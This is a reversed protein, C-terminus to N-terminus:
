RGLGLRVPQDRLAAYWLARLPRVQTTVTRGYLTVALAQWQRCRAAMQQPTPLRAGRRRPRGKQGPRRKPAPAWLAADGRLRSVVHVNPPRHELVARGPDASDVALYVAVGPAWGGVVGVM